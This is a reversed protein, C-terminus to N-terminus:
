GEKLRVVLAREGESDSVSVGNQPCAVKTTQRQTFTKKAENPRNKPKAM